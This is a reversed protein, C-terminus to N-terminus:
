TAAAVRDTTKESKGIKNAVSRAGNVRLRNPIAPFRRFDASEVGESDTKSKRKSKRNEKPSYFRKPVFKPFLTVYFFRVKRFSRLRM